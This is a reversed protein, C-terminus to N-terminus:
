IWSCNSRPSPADMPTPWTAPRGASASGVDLVRNAPGLGLREAAARIAETGHYHWQDLAFLREPPIREAAGIGQAALGKEIRDLHTYLPMSRIM